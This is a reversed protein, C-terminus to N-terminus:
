GFTQLLYKGSNTTTLDDLIAKALSDGPFNTANNAATLAELAVKSAPNDIGASAYFTMGYAYDTITTTALWTTVKAGEAINIKNSKFEQLNKLTAILCLTGGKVNITVRSMTGINGLIFIGNGEKNILYPYQTTRGAETSDAPGAIGGYMGCIGNGNVTLTAAGSAPANVFIDNHTTITSIGATDSSAGNYHCLFSIDDTFSYCDYPTEFCVSTDPIGQDGTNITLNGGCCIAGGYTARNNFFQARGNFTIDKGCYIVGGRGIGNIFNNQAYLFSGPNFIINQKSYIGVGANAPNPADTSTTAGTLKNGIFEVIAGEEIISSEESQMVATNDGGTFIVGGQVSIQKSQIVGKFPGDFVVGLEGPQITVKDTASLLPTTLTTGAGNHIRRTDKIVIETGTKTGNIQNATWSITNTGTNTTSGPKDTIGTVAWDKTIEVTTETRRPCELLTRRTWFLDEATMEEATDFGENLVSISNLNGSLKNVKQGTDTDIPRTGGYSVGIGLLVVLTTQLIKM